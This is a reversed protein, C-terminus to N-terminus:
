RYQIFSEVDFIPYKSMGFTAEYALFYAGIHEIILRDSINIKPFNINMAIWDGSHPLNGYIFTPVITSDQPKKIAYIPHINNHTPGLSATNGDTILIQKGEYLDFKIDAVSLLTSLSRSVVSRGLEFQLEVLNPFNKSIKDEIKEMLSQFLASLSFHHSALRNRIDNTTLPNHFEGM